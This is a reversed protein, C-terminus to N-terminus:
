QHDKFYKENRELNGDLIVVMHYLLKQNVSVHLFRKLYCVQGKSNFCKLQWSTHQHDQFHHFIIKNSEDDLIASLIRQSPSTHFAHIFYPHLGTPRNCYGHCKQNLIITMNSKTNTIWKTDNNQANLYWLHRNKQKLCFSCSKM